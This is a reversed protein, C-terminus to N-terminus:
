TPRSLSTLRCQNKGRKDKQAQKGTWDVLTIYDSLKFPLGEPMGKRPDGVFPYLNKPQQRKDNPHLTNKATDIRSKISTHESTEPTENMRARISNLDVYVM